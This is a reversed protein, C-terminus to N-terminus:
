KPAVKQGRNAVVSAAGLGVLLVVFNVQLATGVFAAVTFPLWLRAQRASSAMQLSSALLLGLAAAAAGNMGNLAWIPLPAGFLLISAAMMLLAGPLTFAGLCLFGAAPGRMLQTAAVVLNPGTGGPLLKALAYTEAFDDSRLWGRRRVLEQFLYSNTSKGGFSVAGLQLLLRALAGVSPAPSDYEGCGAQRGTDPHERCARLPIRPQFAHVSIAM